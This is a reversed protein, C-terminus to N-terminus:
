INSENDSSLPGDLAENHELTFSGGGPLPYTKFREPHEKIYQERIEIAKHFEAREEPTLEPPKQEQKNEENM